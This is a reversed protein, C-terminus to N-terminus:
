IIAHKKDNAISKLKEIMQPGSLQILNYFIGQENQILNLPTDFQAVRGADMVIIRDSDIITNLRHAITIVTCDSFNNRITQQILSDTHNDVNATAEDLILIKNRRLLARALCILQRQGVSLNDGGESLQYELKEYMENVVKKIQVKELANWIEEDSRVDFPDLNKRLSGIFAVPEQPIISIKSRLEHLGIDSCNVSDIIIKGNIEVMRFLATIISSKGAGTRGVIGIKEGGHIEFCVDKLVPKASHNYYLYVHDFIIRGNEPWISPFKYNSKLPAESELDTYELIREVSIMRKEAEITARIGPQTKGILGLITSLILGATGSQIDKYSIMIFISIIIMYIMCILDLCIGTFKMSAFCTFYIATHDNQYRYFQHIFEDNVNFSRITPLGNLTMTMHNFLPNRAINEFRNLDQAVMTYLRRIILISAIMIFAPFMLYWHAISVIITVGLLSVIFNLLDNVSQPLQEDIIGIDKAFRNMIRGIPVNDYFSIPVRILSCYLKKHLHISANICMIFITITQIIMAILISTVLTSYIMVDNFRHDKINMLDIQSNNGMILHQNRNTWQSLWIDTYYYLSSTCIIAFIMLPFRIPGIGARIYKWYIERKISGKSTKTEEVIKPTSCKQQNDSYVNGITMSDNTSIESINEVINKPQLFSELNISKSKIIEDYHDFILQRGNDLVLIKSANKIFQSQHTVLIITKSKLYNMICREFIHNAVKVDVASLPDDLLYIDAESYLARALTLRIKQGGSLSVGREGVLSRDGHPLQELDYQMGCVDIITKYKNKDYESGFLINDRISGNVIWPDQAVYAIRGNLKISGKTIPIENMLSMLFTSKGSGISGIVMVLEGPEVNLIINDLAPQKNEAMWVASVNEMKIAMKDEKLESTENQYTITKPSFEKLLLFDQIRDCSAFMEFLLTLAIPLGRSSVCSTTEIVNMIVFVQDANLLNGDYIVYASLMAFLIIHSSIFAIVSNIAKLIIGLKIQIIEQNRAHDVLRSFHEEWAYMKIVRIGKLIDSIIRLRTDSTKAIKKRLLQFIRGTIMNLPIVLLLLFLGIFCYSGIYIYCIYMRVIFMLPSVIIYSSYNCFQDIRTVDNSILNLIQGITTQRFAQQHLRIAKRYILTCWAVRIKIACRIALYRDPHRLLICFFPICVMALLYLCASQFEDDNPHSFFRIVRSLLLPQISRLFCERIITILISGILHWPFSRLTARIFNPKPRKLELQWYHELINSLQGSDDSQSCKPLDSIQIENNIGKIFLPLVWLNYIRVFLNCNEFPSKKTMIMSQNITAQNKEENSSNLNM